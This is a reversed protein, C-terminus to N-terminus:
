RNTNPLAWSFPTPPFDSRGVTVGSFVHPQQDIDWFPYLERAMKLEGQAQTWLQQWVPEQGGGQKYYWGALIEVLAAKALAPHITEQIQDSFLFLAPHLDRYWVRVKHGIPLYHHFIIKGTSGPLAPEVEYDTIPYWLNNNTQNILAQIDVRFPPAYKWAISWTYETTNSAPTISSTDVLPIRGFSQIALNASNIVKLLPFTPQIIGLTDGSDVTASFATDVTITTGDYDSIRQFEGQPANGDTTRIVLLTGNLLAGQDEGYLGNANSDQGTTTSGGTARVVTMQGLGDDLADRILNSLTYAM